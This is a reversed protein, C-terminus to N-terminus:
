LGCGSILAEPYASFDTRLRPGGEQALLRFAEQVNARSIGNWRKVVKRTKPSILAIDLSHTAGMAKMAKADPEIIAAFNAGLTNMYAQAGEEPAKLMSAFAAASGLDAKIRKVLKMGKPNHPCDKKFFVVVTPKALLAAQTYAKGDTGKLSFAPVGPAQAGAALPLLAMLTILKKM